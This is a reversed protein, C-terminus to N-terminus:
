FGQKKAVEILKYQFYERAFKGTEKKMLDGL